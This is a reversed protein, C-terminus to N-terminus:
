YAPCALVLDRYILRARLYTTNYSGEIEAEGVVPYLSGVRGITRESVGPLFGWVWHDFSTLSSNFPPSGTNSMSKLGSPISNKGEFKKYTGFGFDINMDRNMTALSLPQQLFKGGVFSAGM